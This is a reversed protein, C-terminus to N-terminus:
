TKLFYFLIDNSNLTSLPCKNWVRGLTATDISVDLFGIM